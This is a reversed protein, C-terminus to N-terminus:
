CRALLRVLPVEVNQLESKEERIKAQLVACSCSILPAHRDLSQCSAAVSELWASLQWSTEMSLAPEPPQVPVRTCAHSPMEGRSTRDPAEKADPRRLNTPPSALVGPNRNRVIQCSATKSPSEDHKGARKLPTPRRLRCRPLPCEQMAAM